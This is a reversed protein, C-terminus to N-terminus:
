PQLPETVPPAPLAKERWPLVFGAFVANALLLLGSAVFPAALGSRQGLASFLLAGTMHGTTQIALLLGASGGITKKEFLKAIYLFTLAGMLGDGGEHIARFLWSVYVNPQVLLVHGAGSMIMGALFLRKNAAPDFGRRSVFFASGALALYAAGIYLALGRDGLGFAARLFPSFVTGEVGWHMALVFLMLAFLFTEKRALNGRYERFSVAAFTEGGFGRSVLSAMATLAAAGALLARFGGAALAVGGLMLGVAPGLAAWFIFIGYKRNVEAQSGDKFYLSNLSVDIVNNAVGLLLFLGAFVPFRHAAGLLVFCASMAILGATIMRKMSFRDNIWGTPFSVLLPAVALASVVAGIQVGSLGATMFHLPALFIVTTLALRRSFNVLHIKQTSTM